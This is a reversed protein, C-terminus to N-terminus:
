GDNDEQQQTESRVIADSSVLAEVEARRLQREWEHAIAPLVGVVYDTKADEEVDAWAVGLSRLPATVAEALSQLIDQGSQGATAPSTSAAVHVRRWHHALAARAVPPVRGAFAGDAADRFDFDKWWGIWPGPAEGSPAIGEAEQAAVDALEDAATRPEEAWMIWEYRHRLVRAVAAVINLRPEEPPDNELSWMSGYSSGMAKDTLKAVGEHLDQLTLGLEKRAEKVRNGLGPLPQTM